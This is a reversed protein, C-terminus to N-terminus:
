QTSGYTCPFVPGVPLLGSYRGFGSFDTVSELFLVGFLSGTLYEIGRKQTTRLNARAQKGFTKASIPCFHDFM